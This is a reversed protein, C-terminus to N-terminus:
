SYSSCLPSIVLYKTSVNVSMASFAIGTILSMSLQVSTVVELLGALSDRNFQVTCLSGAGHHTTLSLM